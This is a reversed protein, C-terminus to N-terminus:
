QTVDEAVGEAGDAEIRSPSRRGHRCDRRGSIFLSGKRGARQVSVAECDESVSEFVGAAGVEVNQSM